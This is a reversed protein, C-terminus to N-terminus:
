EENPIAPIFEMPPKAQRWSGLYLMVDAEQKTSEALGKAFFNADDETPFYWLSLRGDATNHGSVRYGKRIKCDEKM